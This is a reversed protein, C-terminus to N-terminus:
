AQPWPAPGGDATWPPTDDLIAADKGFADVAADMAADALTGRRVDVKADPDRPWTGRQGGVDLTVMQRDGDRRSSIVEFWGKPAQVFWGAPITGWTRALTLGTPKNVADVYQVASVDVAIRISMVEEGDVEVVTTGDEFYRMHVNGGNDAQWRRMWEQITGLGVESIERLLDFRQQATTEKM